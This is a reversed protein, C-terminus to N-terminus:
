EYRTDAKNWWVDGDNLEGGIDAQRRPQGSRCDYSVLRLRQPNRRDEGARRDHWHKRREAPEVNGVSGKKSM